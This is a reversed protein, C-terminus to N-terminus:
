KGKKRDQVGTCTVQLNSAIGSFNTGIGSVMTKGTGNERGVSGELRMGM